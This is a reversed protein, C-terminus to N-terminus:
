KIGLLSRESLTHSNVPKSVSLSFTLEERPSLSNWAIFAVLACVVPLTCVFSSALVATLRLIFERVWGCCLAEQPCPVSRYWNRFQGLNKLPNLVIM